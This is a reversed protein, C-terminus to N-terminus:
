AFLVLAFWLMGFLSCALAFEVIFLLVKVLHKM